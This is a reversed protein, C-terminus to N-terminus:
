KAPVCNLLAIALPAGPSSAATLRSLAGTDPDVALVTVARADHSAAYLFLGSADMTLGLAASDGAPFPSGELPTVAGSEPDISFGDINQYNAVYLYTGSPDIALAKPGPGTLFPSASINSLTGTKPDIGYANFNAGNVNTVYLFRGSPDVVVQYPNAGAGFPSGPVASLTGTDANLRFGSVNNSNVNAVYIYQGSPEITLSWPTGGVVVDVFEIGGTAPDIRYSQVNSGRAIVLFRESPDVALSLSPSVPFPSGALPTLDGTNADTAFGSTGGGANDGVYLLTQSPNMALTFTSSMPPLYVTGADALSGTTDVSFVSISPDNNAVYAFCAQPQAAAPAGFIGFAGVLAVTTLVRALLLAAKSRM